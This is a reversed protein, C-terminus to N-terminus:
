STWTFGEKTIIYIIKYSYVNTNLPYFYSKIREGKRELGKNVLSYEKRYKLFLLELGEKKFCDTVTPGFLISKSFSHLSHPVLQVFRPSSIAHASLLPTTQFPNRQTAPDSGLYLYTALPSYRLYNITSLM